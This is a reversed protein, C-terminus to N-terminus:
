GEGAQLRPSKLLGLVHGTIDCSLESGGLRSLAAGNNAINIAGNLDADGTWGCHGCEFKKGKRYSEGRVPHIHLCNHCTQSTYRPDVLVLKVGFKIAKYDLFQRLQYFAWSNSRRRETKSRPMQNTRERIGTLDELAIAQGNAKATQVINYSIVHNVHKQFKQEKGSLRKLLRRVRRRTSRTGKSAKQQLKARLDSNYDRVVTVQKGSFSKGESTVAIDTRGLDVGLFKDTEEPLDPHSELQINLYFEGQKNKTLTATKPKQGKLKGRQFNGIHLTFRERGNLMTLSATWDKERFSFTRVDYTASTPRFEKVTEGKSRATKRNGTVRRIAHIALQSSLGFKARVDHYILSQVALENTLKEPVEQNVYVCADCFAQLTADIKAVQEPAVNLKCSVTLVQKM